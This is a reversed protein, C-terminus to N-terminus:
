RSSRARMMADAMRYAGNAVSEFHETDCLYGTDQLFALMAKGAFDDRLKTGAQEIRCRATKVHMRGDRVDTLIDEVNM